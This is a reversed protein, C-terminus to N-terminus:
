WGRVARDPVFRRVQRRPAADAGRLADRRYLPLSTAATDRPAIDVLTSGRFTCAYVTEAPSRANVTYRATTERVPFTLEIVDGTKLDPVFLHQGVWDLPRDAAGVRLRVERRPV